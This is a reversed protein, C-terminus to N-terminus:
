PTEEVHNFRVTYDDLACGALTWAAVAILLVLTIAVSFTVKM